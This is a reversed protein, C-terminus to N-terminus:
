RLKGTKGVISENVVGANDIDLNYQESRPNGWSPFVNCLM